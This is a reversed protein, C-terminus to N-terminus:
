SPEGNVPDCRPNPRAPASGFIELREVLVRAVIVAMLQRAMGADLGHSVCAQVFRETQGRRRESDFPPQGLAQKVKGIERAHAFRRGLREVIEGDLDDIARQHDAVLTM